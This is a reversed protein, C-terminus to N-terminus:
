PSTTAFLSLVSISFIILSVFFVPYIRAAADHGPPMRRESETGERLFVMLIM